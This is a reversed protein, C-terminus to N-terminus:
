ERLWLALRLSTAVATTFSPRRIWFGSAPTQAAPNRGHGKLQCVQQGIRSFPAVRPAPMKRPVDPPDTSVDTPRRVPGLEDM